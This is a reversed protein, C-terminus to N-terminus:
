DHDGHRDGHHRGHDGHHHGRGDIEWAPVVICGSLNIVMVALLMLKLLTSIKM